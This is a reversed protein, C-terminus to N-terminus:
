RGEKATNIWLTVQNGQRNFAIREAYISAVKLGRGRVETASPWCCRGQALRWNFGPGQDAVRLCILKKGVRMGLNVVSDARGRNGHLIANNLCERALVEISFQMQELHCRQLLSRIQECVPEIASVTSPISLSLQNEARRPAKKAGSQTTVKPM